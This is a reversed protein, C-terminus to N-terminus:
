PLEARHTAPPATVEAVKPRRRLRGAVTGIRQLRSAGWSICPRRTDPDDASHDRDTARSRVAAHLTKSRAVLRGTRAVQAWGWAAQARARAVSAETNAIAVQVEVWDPRSTGGAIPPPLLRGVCAVLDSIEFPKVLFADIPV